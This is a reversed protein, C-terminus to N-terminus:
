SSSSPAAASGTASAAPRPVQSLGLVNTNGDPSKGTFDKPLPQSAAGNSGDSPKNDGGSSSGSSSSSSGSSSSDSSGSSKNNSSSDTPKSANAGAIISAAEDPTITTTTTTTGGTNTGSGGRVLQGLTEPQADIFAIAPGAVQKITDRDIVNNALPNDDSTIWISVPGNVGPPVICKEIPLNISFPMGGIMMNCFQGTSQVGDGEFTLLTGASPTGKNTIKLTKTPTIGTNCDGTIFGVALSLVEQPTFPVDFAQPIASGTGSLLNLLTQHRAEVTLISAAADLFIPDDILTAGGLYASVGLYEVVRATAAMTAVDTLVSDFNFSCKLPEAGNDKLAQQIFTTHAAEDGQITTLSQTVISASSFGANSFDSESFKKIGQAYFETELQELVNAFQFVLADNASAARSKVPRASVLLPSAALVALFSTSYRM